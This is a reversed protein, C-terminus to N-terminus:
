IPGDWISLDGNILYSNHHFQNKIQYQEPIQMYLLILDFNFYIQSTM